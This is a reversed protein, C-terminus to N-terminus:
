RRRRTNVSLIGGAAAAAAMMAFRTLVGGIRDTMSFGGAILLMLFLLSGAALGNLWGKQGALRGAAFGAAFGGTVAAASAMPAVSGQPFDRKLLLAAMLLLTLMCCVAGILAGIGVPRIRRFVTGSDDKHSRM